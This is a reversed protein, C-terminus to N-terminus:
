LDRLYTYVSTYIFEGLENAALRIKTKFISYFVGMAFFALLGFAEYLKAQWFDEAVGILDWTEARLNGRQLYLYRCPKLRIAVDLDALAGKYDNISKKPLSRAGYGRAEEPRLEIIRTFDDIAGHYNGIRCRAFGRDSLALEDNPCQELIRNLMVVDVVAREASERTAIEQMIQLQGTLLGLM